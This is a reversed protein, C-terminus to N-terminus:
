IGLLLVRKRQKYLLYKEIGLIPKYLVDRENEIRQLRPQLSDAPPAQSFVDRTQQILRLSIAYVSDKQEVTLSLSDSMRTALQFAQAEPSAQQAKLAGTLLMAIILTLINRKM